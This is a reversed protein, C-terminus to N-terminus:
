RSGRRQASARRRGDNCLLCRGWGPPLPDRKDGYLPDVAGRPHLSCGTAGHAAGLARAADLARRLADVIQATEEPSPDSELTYVIDSATNLASHLERLEAYGM